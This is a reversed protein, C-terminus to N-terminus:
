EASPLKNWSDPNTCDGTMLVNVRINHSLLREILADIDADDYPSADTVLNGHAL